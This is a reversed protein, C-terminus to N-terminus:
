GLNKSYARLAQVFRKNEEPLRVAVRAYAKGDEFKLSCDKIYINWEKLLYNRLDALQATKINLRLLIFNANSPFVYEVLDLSEFKEIFDRRDAISLQFSDELERRYKLVIELFYEAMSNTNWIPIQSNFNRAAVEDITYVYGLRLGPIGLSKSLSKLIWVNPLPEKQLLDQVSEQEAFEIFSEDVIILKSPSKRALKMIEEGKICSGTPNNPNVFVIVQAAEIQKAPIDEIKNIGKDKYTPQDKFKLAYEGFTPEPILVTKGQLMSELMGYVQSLGNLLCVCEKPVLLFHALKQNLIKQTSGYNQIINPLNYRIDALISNNPFYMNRIFAFDIVPINWFGGFANDLFSIGGDESFAIEALQLDNADDVEIWKAGNVNCAFIQEQRMYVLIGLILEYYCNDNYVTAYFSLLKRFSTQVFEQSFKYINLTKYKNSFDFGPGQLHPPIINTILNDEVDVVTGDMGAKFKDVLAINKHPSELIRDLVAESFFLDSEILLIDDDLPFHEFALHMSYINNTKYYVENFVFTFHVDPFSTNLYNELQDRCYGTVICIESINRVLLLKLMRGIITQGAIELIAKPKSDTYPRMRAGYGAALIIAKM